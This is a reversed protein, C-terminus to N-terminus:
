YATATRIPVSNASHDSNIKLECCFMENM